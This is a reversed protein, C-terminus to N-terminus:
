VVSKRDGRGAGKRPHILWLILNLHPKDTTWVYGYGECEPCRLPIGFRKCRAEILYSRNIADHGKFGEQNSNVEEATPRHEMDVWKGDVVKRTFDWLRNKEVLIDVEEQTISKSWYGEGDRMQECFARFEPGYKNLLEESPYNANDTDPRVVAQSLHSGFSEVIDRAKQEEYTQVVFPSSHRYFSESVWQADPHYGDGGKCAPCEKSARDIEFYFNVVENYDDLKVEFSPWSDVLIPRRWGSKEIMYDEHPGWCTYNPNLRVLGLM